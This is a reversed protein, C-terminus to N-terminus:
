EPDGKSDMPPDKEGIKMRDIEDHPDQPRAAGHRKMQYFQLLPHESPWDAPVPRGAQVAERVRRILEEDSDCPTVRIDDPVPRGAQLAEHFRRISEEDSDCPEVQTKCSVIFIGRRDALGKFRALHALVDVMLDADVICYAPADPDKRAAKGRPLKLPANLGVDGKRKLRMHHAHCLGKTATAFNPCGPVKCPIRTGIKPPVPPGAEPDGYEKERTRHPRCLGNADVYRCCGQIRCTKASTKVSNNPL